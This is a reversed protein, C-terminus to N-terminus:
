LESPNFPKPPPPVERGTSDTYTRDKVPIMGQSRRPPLDASRTADKHAGTPLPAFAPAPESEPLEYGARRRARARVFAHVGSRTVTIGCEKQLRAAIDAYSLHSRRMQRIMEYYPNLASHWPKAGAPPIPKGNPTNM